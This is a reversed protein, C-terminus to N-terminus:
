VKQQIQIRQNMWTGKARLREESAYENRLYYKERENKETNKGKRKLM